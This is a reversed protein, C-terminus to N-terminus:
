ATEVQEPYVTQDTALTATSKITLSLPHITTKTGDRHDLLQDGQIKLSGERIEVQM